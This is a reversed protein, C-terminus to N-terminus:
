QKPPLSVLRLDFTRSDGEALTVRSGIAALADVRTSDNFLIAGEDRPIAALIYEGPLMPGLTRRGGPAPSATVSGLRWRAPDAPIAIVHCSTIARGEDDLVRVTPQAVRDTVILQLRGPSPGSGFDTPVYTIDRGDYRVSKLVWGDPLGTVRVIM